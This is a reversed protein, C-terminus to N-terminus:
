MIQDAGDKSLRFHQPSSSIGHRRRGQKGFKLSLTPFCFALITWMDPAKLDDEGFCWRFTLGSSPFTHFGSALPACWCTSFARCPNRMEVHSSLADIENKRVLQASPPVRPYERHIFESAIVSETPQILKDFSYRRNSPVHSRGRVTGRHCM